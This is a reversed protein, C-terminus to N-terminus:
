IMIGISLIFIQPFFNLLISNEKWYLGVITWMVAGSIHVYVNYPFLSPQTHLYMATLITFAAIYKLVGIFNNM